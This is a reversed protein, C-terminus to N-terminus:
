AAGVVLALYVALLGWFTAPLARAGVMWAAVSAMVPLLRWWPQSEGRRILWVMLGVQLIVLTALLVTLFVYLVLPTALDGDAEPPLENGPALDYSAEILAPEDLEAAAGEADTLVPRLQLARFSGAGHVAGSLPGPREETVTLGLFDLVEPAFPKAELRVELPPPEDRDFYVLEARVAEGRVLVDGEARLVIDGEPDPPLLAEVDKLAVEARGGPLLVSGGVGKLEFRVKDDLRLSAKGDLDRLRYEAADLIARVEIGEFAVEDVQVRLGQRQLEVPAELRAMRGEEPRKWPKQFTMQGNRVAVRLVHVEDSWLSSTEIDVEVRELDLAKRRETLDWYEVGSIELRDLSARDIRGIRLAGPSSAAVAAEVARGMMRRAVPHGLHLLASIFLLVVTALVWAFAAVVRVVSSGGAQM